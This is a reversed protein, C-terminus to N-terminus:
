VLCPLVCLFVPLLSYVLCFHVLCVPVLYVPYNVCLWLCVGPCSNVWLWMLCPCSCLWIHFCSAPVCSVCSLPSVYSGGGLAAPCEPPGEPCVRVPVCSPSRWLLVSLVSAMASSPARSAMTTYPADFAMATCPAWSAMATCPAWSAM